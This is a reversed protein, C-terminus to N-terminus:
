KQKQSLLHGQNETEELTWHKGIQQKIRSLILDKKDKSWEPMVANWVANSPVFIVHSRRKFYFRLEHNREVYVLDGDDAGGRIYTYHGEIIRRIREGVLIVIAWFAAVGFGAVWLRDTWREFQFCFLLVSTIGVILTGNRLIRYM